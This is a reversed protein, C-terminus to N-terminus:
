PGARSKDVKKPGPKSRPSATTKPEQEPRGSGRDGKGDISNVELDPGPSPGDPPAPRSLGIREQIDRDAEFERKEKDFQLLDAQFEDSTRELELQARLARQGAAPARSAARQQNRWDETGSVGELPDGARASGPLLAGLLVSGLLVQKANAGM